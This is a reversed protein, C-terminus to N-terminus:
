ALERDPPLAPSVQVLPIRWRTRIKAPILQQPNFIACQPSDRTSHAEENRLEIMFYDFVVGSM